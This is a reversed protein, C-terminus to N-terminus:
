RSFVIKKDGVFTKSMWMSPLLTQLSTPPKQVIYFSNGLESHSKLESFIVITVHESSLM